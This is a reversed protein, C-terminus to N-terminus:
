ESAHNAKRNISTPKLNSQRNASDDSIEFTSIIKEAKAELDRLHGRAEQASEYTHPAVVRGELADGLKVRLFTSTTYRTADLYYHDMLYKVMEM